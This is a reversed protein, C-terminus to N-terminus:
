GTWHLWDYYGFESAYLDYSRNSVDNSHATLGVFPLNVYTVLTAHAETDTCSAEALLYHNNLTHM